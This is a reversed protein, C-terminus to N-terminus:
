FLWKEAILLIVIYISPLVCAAEKACKRTNIWVGQVGKCGEQTIYVVLIFGSLGMCLYVFGGSKVGGGFIWYGVANQIGNVHFFHQIFNLYWINHDYLTKIVVYTMGCMPIRTCQPHTPSSFM